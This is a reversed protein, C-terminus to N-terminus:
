CSIEEDKIYVGIAIQNSSDTKLRSGQSGSESIIYSNVTKEM